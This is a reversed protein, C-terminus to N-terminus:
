GTRGAGTVRRVGPEIRTTVVADALRSSYEVLQGVNMVGTAADREASYGKAEVRGAEIAGLGEAIGEELLRGPAREVGLHEPVHGLASPAELIAIGSM